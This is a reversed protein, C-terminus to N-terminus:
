HPLADGDKQFEISQEMKIKSRISSSVELPKCIFALYPLIPM